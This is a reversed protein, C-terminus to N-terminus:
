GVVMDGCGGFYLVATRGGLSVANTRPFYRLLTHLLRFNLILTSYNIATFLPPMFSLLPNDSRTGCLEFTFGKGKAMNDTVMGSETVRLSPVPEVVQLAAM